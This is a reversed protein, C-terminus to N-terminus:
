WRAPLKKIRQLSRNKMQVYGGRVLDKILKSVMERSAGIQTALQAHTIQCTEGQHAFTQNLTSVLRPYVELLALDHAAKTASRARAIATNLLDLAFDSNDRAYALVQPNPVAICECDTLAEASASRVGGDLAMEGFYHGAQIINYVIEKGSLSKSLTRVEGRVLLYVADGIDGEKLITAGSRYQRAIGLKSLESFHPSITSM